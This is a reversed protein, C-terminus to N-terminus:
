TYMFYTLNQTFFVWLNQTECDKQSIHFYHVHNLMCARCILLLSFVGGFVTLWMTSSCLNHLCLVLIHLLAYLWTVNFHLCFLLHFIVPHMSLFFNYTFAHYLCSFYLSSSCVELRPEPSIVVAESTVVTYLGVGNTVRATVYIVSGIPLRLHGRVYM